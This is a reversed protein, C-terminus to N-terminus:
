KQVNKVASYNLLVGKNVPKNISIKSEFSPALLRVNLAEAIKQLFSLSPLYNGSELRAISAQQSAIMKALEVQTLDQRMREARVMEAVALLLEDHNSLEQSFVGAKELKNKINQLSM